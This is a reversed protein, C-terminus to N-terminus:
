DAILRISGVGGQVDVHIRVKANEYADNVLHGDERHLGRSDISGIGGSANASVGVDRPLRIIAEGVGGHVNVDFDHTPAGRLDMDLKGVGMHVEVGRLQLSGLNLRADGAGFDVKLDIPVDDNLQLDWRYQMKGTHVGGPQRITLDGYSGASSYRVEPKSYPVNYTFDAQLLKQAGGEVRLDGAGMKLNVRVQKSADKEITRYEHEPPGTNSVVVCGGLFLGAAALPFWRAIMAGGGSIM